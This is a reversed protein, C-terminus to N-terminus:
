IKIPNRSDYRKSKELALPRARVKVVVSGTLCDVTFSAKMTPPSADPNKIDGAPDQFLTAEARTL